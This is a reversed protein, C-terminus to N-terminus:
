AKIKRPSLNRTPSLTSSVVTSSSSDILLFVIKAYETCVSTTSAKWQLFVNSVFLVPICNEKPNQHVHFKCSSQPWSELDVSRLQNVIHPIIIGVDAAQLVRMATNMPRRRLCDLFTSAIISSEGVGETVKGRISQVRITHWENILENWSRDRVMADYFVHLLDGLPRVTVNPGLQRLWEGDRTRSATSAYLTKSYPAISVFVHYLFM